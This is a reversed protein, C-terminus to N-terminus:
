CVQRTMYYAAFKGFHVEDFVVEAPSSIEYLRVGLAMAFLAIPIWWVNHRSSGKVTREKEFAPQHEADTAISTPAPTHRRRLKADM